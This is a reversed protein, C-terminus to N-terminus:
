DGVVFGVLQEDEVLTSFFKADQAADGRAYNGLPSSLRQQPDSVAVGIRVTGFDVGAIRGTAPLADSM